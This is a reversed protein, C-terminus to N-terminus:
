HLWPWRGRGVRRAAGSLVTWVSSRFLGQLDVAVDYRRARLRRIAAADLVIVQHVFGLARVLPASSEQVLWDVRAGPLETALSAAAGVSHVVDGISSLKIVLIHM